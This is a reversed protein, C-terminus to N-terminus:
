CDLLNLHRQGKNVENKALLAIVLLEVVGEMRESCNSCKLKKPSEVVAVCTTGLDLVM